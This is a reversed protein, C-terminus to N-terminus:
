SHAGSLDPDGGQFEASRYYSAGVKLLYRLVLDEDMGMGCDDIRMWMYGDRDQLFPTPDNLSTVAILGPRSSSNETRTTDISNQVLERVFAYPDDYINEGM